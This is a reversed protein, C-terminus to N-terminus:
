VLCAAEEVRSLDTLPKVEAVKYIQGPEKWVKVVTGIAVAKPFFGGYGASEVVDGPVIDADVSLYKMRCEGSFTGYLIGQHRTRQVLAGIRSNPDTILLVKSVAPGAEVVKGILSSESLIPTNVRIGQEEGKDILLVRNWASPSRAIVRAFIAKGMNSPLIRRLELLQSLRQNELRLERMQFDDPNQRGAAQRMFALEEANKHFNWLDLFVQAADRSFAIPHALVSYFSTKILIAKSLPLLVILTLFFCIAIFSRSLRM